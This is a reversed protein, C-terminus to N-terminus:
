SHWPGGNERYSKALDQESAGNLAEALQKPLLRIEDIWALVQQSNVEKPFQFQGIPYRLDTM